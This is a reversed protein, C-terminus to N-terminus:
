PRLLRSIAQFFRIIVNTCAKSVQYSVVLPQKMYYLRYVNEGWAMERLERETHKEVLDPYLPHSKSNIIVVPMWLHNTAKCTKHATSSSCSSMDGRVLSIGPVM